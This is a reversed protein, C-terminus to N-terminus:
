TYSSLGAGSGWQNPACQKQIAGLRAQGHCHCAAPWSRYTSRGTPRRPRLDVPGLGLGLRLRKAEPLQWLLLEVDLCNLGVPSMYRGNAAAIKVVPCYITRSPPETFERLPVLFKPMVPAQIPGTAM